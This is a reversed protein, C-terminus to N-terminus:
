VVMVVILTGYLSPLIQNSKRHMSVILYFYINYISRSGIIRQVFSIAGSEM